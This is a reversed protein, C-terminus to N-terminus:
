RGVFTNFTWSDSNFKKRWKTNVIWLNSTYNSIWHPDFTGLCCWYVVKWNIWYDCTSYISRKGLSTLLDFLRWNRRTVESYDHPLVLWFTRHDWKRQLANKFCLHYRENSRKSSWLSWCIGFLSPARTPRIKLNTKWWHLETKCRCVLTRGVYITTLTCTTFKSVYLFRKQLM